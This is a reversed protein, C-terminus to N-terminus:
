NMEEDDLEVPINEGTLQDHIAQQNWAYGWEQADGLSDTSVNLDLHIDGKADAWVGPATFGEVHDALVITAVTFTLPTDGRLIVGCEEISVIYRGPLTGLTAGTIEGARTRAIANELESFLDANIM